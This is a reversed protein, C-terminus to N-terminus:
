HMNEKRKASSFDKKQVCCINNKSNESLGTKWNKLFFLIMESECLGNVFVFSAFTIKGLFRFM